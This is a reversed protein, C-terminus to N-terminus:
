RYWLNLAPKETKAQEQIKNISKIVKKKKQIKRILTAESLESDSLGTSPEIDTDEEQVYKSSKKTKVVKPKDEVVIYKKLFKGQKLAEEKKAKEEAQKAELLRQQKELDKQEKEAERKLRLKERGEALVLRMKEKTADDMKRPERKQKTLKVAQRMTIPIPEEPDEFQEIVQGIQPKKGTGKPRGAVGKGTLETFRQPDTDLLTKIRNIEAETLVLTKSLSNKTNDLPQNIVNKSSM